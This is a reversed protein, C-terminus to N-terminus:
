INAEKWHEPEDQFLSKWGGGYRGKIRGKVLSLLVMVLGAIVNNWIAESSQFFLPSAIFVIGSLLTFFRASRNLEWLAVIACTIALPGIIYNYDAEAKEYEFLAPAIMIWIGLIINIAATWM